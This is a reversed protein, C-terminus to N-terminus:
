NEQKRKQHFVAAIQIQNKKIRYIAIYPFTKIIVRRANKRITPAAEPFYQIFKLAIAFEDIFQRALKSDISKYHRVIKELDDEASGLIEVKLM